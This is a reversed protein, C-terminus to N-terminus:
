KRVVMGRGDIVYRRALEGRATLITCWEGRCADDQGRKALTKRAEQSAEVLGDTWFSTLRLQDKPSGFVVLYSAM